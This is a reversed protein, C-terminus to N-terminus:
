RRSSFAAYCRESEGKWVPVMSGDVYDIIYTSPTLTFMLEDSGDRDIDAATISNQSEVNDFLLWDFMVYLNDAINRFFGFFWNTKDPDDQDKNYAGVCFEKRGDGDFDGVAMYNADTAPLRTNWTMSYQSGYNYLEFVMVDGDEDATLIDVNGDNDFDGSCLSASFYNRENTATTNVLNNVEAFQTGTRDLLTLVRSTTLNNVVVLEDCADADFNVFAGGLVNSMNLMPFSPYNSLTEYVTAVNYRIGLVELGTGDTDGTDHPWFQDEFTYLVNLRNDDLSYIHVPGYSGSLEMAVFKRDEYPPLSVLAPGLIQQYYDNVNVSANDIEIVDDYWNSLSTLGCRNVAELRIALPGDPFYEDLQFVQATDAYNSFVEYESGDAARCDVRLNVPESYNARLFYEQLEGDYRKEVELSHDDLVPPTQDIQFNRRLDYKEGSNTTLQVRLLYNGDPLYPELFFNGLTGDTVPDYYFTPTNTHNRADLWDLDTPDEEQTYMLSYRFFDNCNVTGIIDFSSSVGTNDAPFDIALSPQATTSIAAAADIIGWGYTNDFGEAGLDQATSCIRARVEEFTLGPQYSLLLGVIGTVFPSAMSTGSQESYPTDSDPNWCSLVASGPAVVDMEPGTSTGTANLYSDVAGV